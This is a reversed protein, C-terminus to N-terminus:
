PRAAFPRSEARLYDVGSLRLAGTRHWTAPVLVFSGHKALGEGFARSYSNRLQSNINALRSNLHRRLDRFVGWLWEDRFV